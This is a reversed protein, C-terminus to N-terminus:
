KTGSAAPDGIECSVSARQAFAPTAPNHYYQPRVKGQRAGSGPDIEAPVRTRELPEGRMSLSRSARAEMSTQAGRRVKLQEALATSTSIVVAITRFSLPATCM